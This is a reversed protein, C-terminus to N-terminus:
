SSIASIMSALSPVTARARGGPACSAGGLGEGVAPRCGSARASSPGGPGGSGRVPTTILWRPDPDTGEEVTAERRLLLLAAPGRGSRGSRGHGRRAPLPHSDELVWSAWNEKPGPWGDWSKLGRETPRQEAICGPGPLPRTGGCNGVAGCRGRRPRTAMPPPAALAHTTPTSPGRRPRRGRADLRPRRGGVQAPRGTRDVGTVTTLTSSRPARPGTEGERVGRGLAEHRDPLLNSRSRRAGARRAARALRAGLRGLLWPLLRASVVLGGLRDRTPAGGRALARDSAPSAPLVGARVGLAARRRSGVVTAGSRAVPHEGARRGVAPRREALRRVWCGRVRTVPVLGRGGAPGLRSARAAPGAAPGPWCGPRGTRGRARHAGATRRRRGDGAPHRQPDPGGDGAEGQDDADEATEGAARELVLEGGAGPVLSLPRSRPVCASRRVARPRCRTPRGRHRLRQQGARDLDHGLEVALAAARGAGAEHQVALTVDHGVVVHDRGGGLVVTRDDDDVVRPLAALGRHDAAARDVVEGHQGDLAGPVELRGGEAGRLHQADAVGHDREPSREPEALGDGGADHAREFRGTVM